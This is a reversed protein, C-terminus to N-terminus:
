NRTSEYWAITEDLGADLTTKARIGLETARSLDLRRRPPGTPRARDWNMKGPYGIKAAIKLALDAIPIEWGSGLNLPDPSSWQEAAALIMEAADGAYVFERTANGEGWLTVRSEGEDRAGAFKAILAPIVHGRERDMDDGPGYITASLLLIADIGQQRAARTQALMARVPGAVTASALEAPGNELDQERLPSPAFEPYAVISGVLAIKKVGALRAEHLLASGGALADHLDDEPHERRGGIGLPRSITHIVLEPSTERLFSRLDARDLPDPAALCDPIRRALAVSLSPHRGTWAVRPM